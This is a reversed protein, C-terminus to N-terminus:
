GYFVVWRSVRTTKTKKRCGELVVDIILVHVIFRKALEKDRTM